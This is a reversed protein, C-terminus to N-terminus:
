RTELDVCTADGYAVRIRCTSDVTVWRHEPTERVKALLTRIRNVSIGREMLASFASDYTHTQPANATNTM